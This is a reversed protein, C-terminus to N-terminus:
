NITRVTRQRELPILRKGGETKAAVVDEKGRLLPVRSRNRGHGAKIEGDKRLRLLRYGDNEM